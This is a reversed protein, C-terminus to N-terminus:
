HYFTHLRTTTKSSISSYTSSIDFPTRRQMSLTDSHCSEESSYLKETALAWRAEVMFIADRTRNYYSSTLSCSSNKWRFNVSFTFILMMCNNINHTNLLYNKRLKTLLRSETVSTFTSTCKISFM